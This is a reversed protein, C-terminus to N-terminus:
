EKKYFPDVNRYISKIQDNTLLYLQAIPLKNKDYGTIQPTNAKIWKEAVEVIM